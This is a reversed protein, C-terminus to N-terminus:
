TSVKKNVLVFFDEPGARLTPKGGRRCFCGRHSLEPLRDMYVPAPGPSTTIM